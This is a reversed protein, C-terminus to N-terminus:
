QLGSPGPRLTVASPLQRPLTLGHFVCVMRLGLRPHELYLSSHEIRADHVLRRIPYVVVGLNQGYVFHGSFVDRVYYRHEFVIGVMVVECREDVREDFQSVAQHAAALGPLDEGVLQSSV